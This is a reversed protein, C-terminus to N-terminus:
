KIKKYGKGIEFTILNDIEMLTLLTSVERVDKGLKQSIEDISLCKNELCNYVHKYEEKIKIKKLNNINKRKKKHLFEPYNQIIDMGETVILGGNKLLKNTGFSYPNDLSGHFQLFKKEQSLLM